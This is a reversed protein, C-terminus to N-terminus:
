KVNSGWIKAEEVEDGRNMEETRLSTSKIHKGKKERRSDPWCKKELIVGRGV